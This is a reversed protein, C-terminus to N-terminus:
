IIYLGAMYHVAKDVQCIYLIFGTFGSLYTSLFNHYIHKHLMFTVTVKLFKNQYLITALAEYLMLFIYALM